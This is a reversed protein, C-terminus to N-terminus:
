ICIKNGRRIYAGIYTNAKLDTVLYADLYINAPIKDRLDNKVNTFYPTVRTSVSIQLHLEEFILTYNDKGLRSDLYNILWLYTYSVGNQMKALINLRRQEISNDREVNLMEEYRSLGSSNAYNIFQNDRLISIKDRILEIEPAISNNFAQFEKISAIFNPLNRLVDINGNNSLETENVNKGKM